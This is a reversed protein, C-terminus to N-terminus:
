RIAFSKSQGFSAVAAFPNLYKCRDEIAGAAEGIVEGLVVNV